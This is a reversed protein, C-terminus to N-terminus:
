KTTVTINTYPMSISETASASATAHSDTGPTGTLTGTAYVKTAALTQVYSWTSGVGSMVAGSTIFTYSYPTPTDFDDDLPADVGIGESASNSTDFMDSSCAASAGSQHNVAYASSTEGFGYQVKGVISPATHSFGSFSVLLQWNGNLQGTGNSPHPTADVVASITTANQAGVGSPAILAAGTVATSNVYVQLTTTQANAACSLALALVSLCITLTLPYQFRM